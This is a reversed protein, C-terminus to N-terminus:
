KVAVIDVLGNGLRHEANLFPTKRLFVYTLTGREARRLPIFPRWFKNKLLLDGMRKVVWVSRVICNKLDATTATKAKAVTARAVGWPGSHLGRKCDQLTLESHQASRQTAPTHGRQDKESSKVSVSREKQLEASLHWSLYSVASAQM